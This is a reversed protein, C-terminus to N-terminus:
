VIGKETITFHDVVDSEVLKLIIWREVLWIAKTLECIM